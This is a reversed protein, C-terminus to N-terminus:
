IVIMYARSCASLCCNSGARAAFFSSVDCCRGGASFDDYVFPNQGQLVRQRLCLVFGPRGVYIVFAMLLRPRGNTDPIRAAGSLNRARVSIFRPDLLPNENPLFSTRLIRLDDVLVFIRYFDHVAFREGIPLTRELRVKCSHRGPFLHSM